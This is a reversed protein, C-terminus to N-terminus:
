GGNFEFIVWFLDGEGLIGDFSGLRSKLVEIFGIINAIKMAAKLLMLCGIQHIKVPLM